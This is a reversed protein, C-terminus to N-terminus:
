SLFFPIPLFFVSYSIYGNTFSFISPTGCWTCSPPPPDDLGAVRMAAEGSPVIYYTIASQGLPVASFNADGNDNISGPMLNTGYTAGVAGAAIDDSSAVTHFNTGDYTLLAAHPLGDPLSFNVGFFLSKTANLAIAPSFSSIMSNPFGPAPDGDQLILSGSTAGAARFFLGSNGNGVFAFDGAQNVTSNTPIGFQTPVNLPSQDTAVTVLPVGGQAHGTGGFLLIFWFAAAFLLIGSKGIFLSLGASRPPLQIPQTSPM